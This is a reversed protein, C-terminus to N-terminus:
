AIRYGEARLAETADALAAEKVLIYDTDFTSLVFVSISQAALAQAIRAIIGILGFDLVAEVKIARWGHEVKVGEPVCRTECVLSAEDATVTFSLFASDLAAAPLDREALKCVSLAFPLISLPLSTM